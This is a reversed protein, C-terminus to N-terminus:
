KVGWKYYQTSSIDAQNPFLDLTHIRLTSNNWYLLDNKITLEVKKTDLKIESIKGNFLELVIDTNGQSDIVAYKLTVQRGRQDKNLFIGTLENKVNDLTIQISDIQLDIGQSIDKVKFAFPKYLIDSTKDLVSIDLTTYHIMYTEGLENIVELDLLLATTNYYKKFENILDQSIM